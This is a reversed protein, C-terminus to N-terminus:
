RPMSVGVFTVGRSCEQIYLKDPHVTLLLQETAFTKLLPICSKLYELNEHGVVFDDAYRVITLGLSECYHDFPTLYFNAFM